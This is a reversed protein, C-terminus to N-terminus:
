NTSIKPELNLFEKNKKKQQEVSYNSKITLVYNKENVM